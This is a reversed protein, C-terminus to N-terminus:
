PPVNTGVTGHDLEYAADTNRHVTETGTDTLTRDFLAPFKADRNRILYKVKVAAEDLDM